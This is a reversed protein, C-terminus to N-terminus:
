LLYQADELTLVYRSSVFSLICSLTNLTNLRLRRRALLRQGMVKVPHGSKHKSALVCHFHILAIIHRARQIYMSLRSAPCSLALVSSPLFQGDGMTSFLMPRLCRDYRFSLLLLLVNKEKHKLLISVQQFYSFEFIQSELNVRSTFIVTIVNYVPIYLFRM